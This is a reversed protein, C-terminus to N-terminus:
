LRLRHRRACRGAGPHTRTRPDYGKGAEVGIMAAGLDALLEITAPGIAPRDFRLDQAPKAAKAVVLGKGMLAAARRLAADTGEIAEVAGVVGDRVAVAQGVDFRGVSRVIEFAVRLDKLQAPSPTPGAALGPEALIDELMPVPDIVAIGEAEIEGAVARLVADDSFRGIRSCCRWRGRMPPLRIERAARALNWGGDRSRKRGRKQFSRDNTAARWGQDLHDRRDVTSLAPDTEGSHAIAIIGLGRRRAARAVELPFIGNGAILGLKSM